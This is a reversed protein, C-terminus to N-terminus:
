PRRKKESRIEIDNSYLWRSSTAEFLRLRVIAPLAIKDKIHTLLVLASSQEGPEVELKRGSYAGGKLAIVERWEGDTLVDWRAVPLISKGSELDKNAEFTFIADSMNHIVAIVRWAHSDSQSIKLTSDKVDAAQLYVLGFLLVFFLFRVAKM